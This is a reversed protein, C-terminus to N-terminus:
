QSRVGPWRRFRRRSKRSSMTTHKFSCPFGMSVIECWRSCPSTTFSFFGYATRSFFCLSNVVSVSYSTTATRLVLYRKESLGWGSTSSSDFPLDERSDVGKEKNYMSGGESLREEQKREAYNPYSSMHYKQSHRSYSCKMSLRYKSTCVSVPLRFLDPQTLALHFARAELKV